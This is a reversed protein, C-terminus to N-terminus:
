RLWIPSRPDSRLGKVPNYFLLNHSVRFSSSFLWRARDTHRKLLVHASKTLLPSVGLPLNCLQSANGYVTNFRILMPSTERLQMNHVTKSSDETNVRHVQQRVWLGQRGTNRSEKTNRGKVHVQKFQHSHHRIFRDLPGFFHKYILDFLFM